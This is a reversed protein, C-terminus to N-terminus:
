DWLEVCVIYALQEVEELYSATDATIDKAHVWEVLRTYLCVLLVHECEKVLWAVLLLALCDACSQLFNDDRVCLPRFEFCARLVRGRNISPTGSPPPLKTQPFSTMGFAFRLSRLFVVNLYRVNTRYSVIRSGTMRLSAFWRDVGSADASPALTM